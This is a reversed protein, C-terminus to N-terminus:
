SRVHAVGPESAPPARERVQSHEVPVIDDYRGHILLTPCRTKGIKSQNIFIDGVVWDMVGLDYNAVRAASRFASMLIVGAVTTRM